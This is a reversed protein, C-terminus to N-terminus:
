QNLLANGDPLFGAPHLSAIPTWNWISIPVFAGFHLLPHVLYRQGGPLNVPFLEVIKPSVPQQNQM